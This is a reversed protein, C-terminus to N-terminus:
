SHGLYDEPSFTLSTYTCCMHKLNFILLKENYIYVVFLITFSGVTCIKQFKVYDDLQFFHLDEIRKIIAFLNGWRISTVFLIGAHSLLMAFSVNLTNILINWESTKKPKETLALPYFTLIVNLLISSFGLSISWCYLLRSEKKIASPDLPIGVIRLGFVLKKFIVELHNTPIFGMKIPDENRLM